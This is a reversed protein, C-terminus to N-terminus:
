AAPSVENNAPWLAQVEEPLAHRVKEVQHPDVHHNLVRFVARAADRSDVPKGSRLEAAVISLFEDASRWTKPTESPRWQDYYTGRVLLPLQAGLHAALNAPVRDRISRLVAGLVHWALKRDRPLTTMIEDLWTNTLQLTRDFVELGTASM